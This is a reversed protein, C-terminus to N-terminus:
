FNNSDFPIIVLCLYNGIIEIDQDLIQVAKPCKIASAPWNDPIHGFSIKGLNGQLDFM